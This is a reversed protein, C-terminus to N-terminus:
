RGANRRSAPRSLALLGLGLLIATGPEPITTLNDIAFYQPTNIGFDGIDTSEFRFSLQQVVGLSTLDVWTWEDVIFDNANTPDTYDALVFEVEGTSAGSADHGEIFLRFVDPEDGSPGGFPDTFMDGDRMSLYAYTTNTFDAGLVTQPTPLTVRGPAGFPEFFIGFGASGGAGGGTINSFQNTFGPTTTDTTTSAAFGSFGGYSPFYNNDFVIGGSEFSGALGSGNEFAEPALGLDDFTAVLALAPTAGLAAVFTVALSAVRRSRRLRGFALCALGALALGGTTAPEPVHIVGVADLDFGGVEFATAYPDYLPQGFADTTSGDGIADRLRVWRVDTLDVLGSRVLPDFALDALDFGTGLLAPHRGALGHYDTPDLTEFSAVPVDNLSHSEFRAFDIGNSAVEVFALEAFLGIFDFFGNEFVAFDDGPGNSIGSELYLTITGGDGLSVTDATDGTAVGLANAPDGFSAVPGAPAAIDQPGRAIADVATAWAVMEAPPHGADTYPGALAPGALPTTTLALALWAGARLSAAIKPM